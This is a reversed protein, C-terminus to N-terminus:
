RADQCDQTPKDPESSQIVDLYILELIFMPGTRDLVSTQNSFIFIKFNLTVSWDDMLFAHPKTRTQFVLSQMISIFNVFSSHIDRENDGTMRLGPLNKM